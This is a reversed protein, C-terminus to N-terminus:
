LLDAPAAYTRKKKWYAYGWHAESTAVDSWTAAEQWMTIGLVVNGEASKRWAGLNGDNM